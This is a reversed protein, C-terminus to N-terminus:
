VREVLLAIGQGVGICMTAVAYRGGTAALQRAATWAIRGGSAGLPHGIAIAGGNPNVHEADDALVIVQDKYVEMFGGGIFLTEEEDTGHKIHMAGVQLTVMLPAHHPLIGLQGVDPSGPAVVETATGDYITGVQTVVRVHLESRQQPQAM